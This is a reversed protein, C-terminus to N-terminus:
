VTSSITNKIQRRKFLAFIFVILVHSILCFALRFLMGLGYEDHEWIVTKGYIIIGVYTIVLLANAIFFIKFKIWNSLMYASSIWLIIPILIILLILLAEM